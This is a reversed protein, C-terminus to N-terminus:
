FLNVVFSFFQHRIMCLIEKLEKLVLTSFLQIPFCRLDQHPPESHAVEDIDM